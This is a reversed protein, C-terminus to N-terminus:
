GHSPDDELMRFSGRTFAAILCGKRSRSWHRSGPKLSVCDGTRYIAGDSDELDGKLIVFEEYGLHEHPLSRAGPAFRVLYFGTGTKADRSINCWSLGPWTEGEFRALSEFTATRANVVTRLRGLRTTAAKRPRAATARRGAGKATGM